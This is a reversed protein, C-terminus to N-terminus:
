LEVLTKFMGDGGYLVPQGACEVWAHALFSPTTRAGIVLKAAIGRRALVATLVLSQMLCRTDGPLLVLTRQVANSLDRAEGLRDDDADGHGFSPGSRGRLGAVVVNLPGRRVARRVTLYEVVIEVVLRARRVLRSSRGRDARPAVLGVLAEARGAVKSEPLGTAM